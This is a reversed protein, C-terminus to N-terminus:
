ILMSQSFMWGSNSQNVRLYTFSNTTDNEIKQPRNEGAPPSKEPKSHYILRSSHSLGILSDCSLKPPTHWARRTNATPCRVRLRAPSTKQTQAHFVDMRSQTIVATLFLTRTHKSLMMSQPRKQRQPIFFGRLTINKCSIRKEWVWVNWPHVVYETM